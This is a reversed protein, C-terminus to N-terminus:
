WALGSYLRCPNLFLYLSQHIASQDDDVLFPYDCRETLQMTCRRVIRESRDGWVWGVGVTDTQKGDVRSDARRMRRDREGFGENPDFRPDSAGDWRTMM